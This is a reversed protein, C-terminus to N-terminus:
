KSWLPGDMRAVPAMFALFLFARELAGNIWRSWFGRITEKGMVDQEYGTVGTSWTWGEKEEEGDM